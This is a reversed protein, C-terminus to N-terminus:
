NLCVVRSHTDTGRSLARTVLIRHALSFSDKSHACIGLPKRGNDIRLEKLKTLQGISDPLSQLEEICSISLVELEPYDGLNQLLKANQESIELTKTSAAVSGTLAFLFFGMVLSM